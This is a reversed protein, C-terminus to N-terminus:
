LLLLLLLSFLVIMRSPSAITKVCYTKVQVIRAILSLVSLLIELTYVYLKVVLRASSNHVESEGPTCYTRTCM